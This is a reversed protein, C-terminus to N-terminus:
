KRKSEPKKKSEPGGPARGSSGGSVAGSREAALGADGGRHDDIKVGFPRGPSVKADHDIIMFASGTVPRGRQGLDLPRKQQKRRQPITTIDSQYQPSTM